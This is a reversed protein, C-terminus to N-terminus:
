AAPTEENTGESSTDEAPMEPAVETNGESSTDEAPMAPTQTADYAGDTM